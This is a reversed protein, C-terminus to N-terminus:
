SAKQNEADEDLLGGAVKMAQSAKKLKEKLEASFRKEKDFRDQLLDMNFEVLDLKKKLDIIKKDRADILVESDKKLIELRNELEKERTRIKRIDIRVREKLKEIDETTEIVKRELVKAKDSKTKLKFTLEDVEKQLSETQSKLDFDFSSTKKRLEEVMHALETSKAREVTLKQELKLNHEKLAEQQASLAEVDQERLQLFKKLTEIDPTSVMGGPVIADNKPSTLQAILEDVNKKEESNFIYPMNELVEKDSKVDVKYSKEEAIPLEVPTAEKVEEQQSEQNAVVMEDLDEAQELNQEDQDELKLEEDHSDQDVSIPEHESREIELPQDDQSDENLQIPESPEHISGMETMEVGPAQFETIGQVELGEEPAEEMKTMASLTSEPAELQISLESLPKGAVQNFAPGQYIETADELVVNSMSSSTNTREVQPLVEGTVSEVVSRLESESYPANVYANVGYPSDQHKVCQEESWKQTTLICAIDSYQANEKFKEVFTIGPDGSGQPGERNVVILDLSTGVKQLLTLAEALTSAVHVQGGQAAVALFPNQQASYQPSFLLINMLKSITM